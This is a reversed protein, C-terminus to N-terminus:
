FETCHLKVGLVDLKLQCFFSHMEKLIFNVSGNSNYCCYIVLFNIMSKVEYCYSQKEFHTM